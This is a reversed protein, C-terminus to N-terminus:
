MLFFALAQQVAAQHPGRVARALKSIFATQCYTLRYLYVPVPLLGEAEVEQATERFPVLSVAAEM